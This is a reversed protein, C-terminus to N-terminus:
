AGAVKAVGDHIRSISLAANNLSMVLLSRSSRLKTLIDFNTPVDRPLISIDHVIFTSDKRIQMRHVIGGGGERVGRGGGRGGTSLCRSVPLAIVISIPRTGLNARRLTRRVTIIGISDCRCHARAAM